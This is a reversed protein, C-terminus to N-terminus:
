LEIVNDFMGSVVQHAVIIVHKGNFHSQISEFVINTNEQDLNSTCEDLLLLPTNFMESLALTYALVVRSLEGGSLSTIDCEMGKYEIEINLQSKVNKTKKNEKYPTLIVSIPNDVFFSDLYLQAHQNISDIVSIMSISEAELIKEKLTIASLYRMRHEYEDKELTDIKTKWDDYCKRINENAMWKEILSINGNHTEINSEYTSILTQNNKIKELISNTLLNYDIDSINTNINDDNQYKKSFDNVLSRIDDELKGISKTITSIKAKATNYRTKKSNNLVIINRINEESLDIMIDDNCDITGITKLINNLKSLIGDMNKKMSKYESSYNESSIRSKVDTLQKEIDRNTKVYHNLDDIASRTIEENFDVNSDYKSKISSIDDSINNLSQLSVKNNYIKSKLLEIDSKLKTKEKITKDINNTNPNNINHDVDDVRYINSDEIKVTKSCHPCKYVKGTNKSIISELCKLEDMMKDLSREDSDIMNKLADIGKVGKLKKEMDRVRVIDDLFSTHEKIESMCEEYTGDGWGEDRLTEEYESLQRTLEAVAEDKMTALQQVGNDYQEQLWKRERDSNLYSLYRNYKEIIDDDLIDIMSLEQEYTYLEDSLSVISDNKSVIKSHSLKLDNERDKFESILQTTKKLLIQSNKLRVYENKIVTERQSPKCKIPFELICPKTMTELHSRSLDLKANINILDDNCKSIYSKSAHKIKEIDTGKFAFKEIFSLKEIPSMMIFTNCANQSIYGSVRFMSGFKDNIIEQGTDDEYVDNVILRNPKRTRSIVIDDFELKVTCSTKGFSVIKTGDGYLCFMVANMITSKGKGSQASILTLGSEGFDFTENLYCGFNKLYLKM